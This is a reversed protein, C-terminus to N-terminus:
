PIPMGGYVNDQLDKMASTAELEPSSPVYIVNKPAESTKVLVELLETFDFGEVVHGYPAFAADKVSQIKM